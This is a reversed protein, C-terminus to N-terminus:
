PTGYRRPDYAPRAANVPVTAPGPYVVGNINGYVITVGGAASASIAKKSMEPARKPVTTVSATTTTVPTAASTTLSAVNKASSPVAESVAMVIRNAYDPAAKIAAVAIAEASERVLKAAAASVPAAIEPAVTSIASVVSVIVSPNNKAIETIALIAMDTKDEASAQAVIRAAKPAIEVKPVNEFAGKVSQIQAETLANASTIAATLIAALLVTSKRYNDMKMFYCM